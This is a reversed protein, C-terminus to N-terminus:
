NFFLNKYIMDKQIIPLVWEGKVEEYDSDVMFEEEHLDGLCVSSSEMMHSTEEYDSEKYENNEIIEVIGKNNDLAQDLAEDEGLEVYDLSGLTEILKNNRKNKCENAYHGVAGCAWCKCKNKKRDPM